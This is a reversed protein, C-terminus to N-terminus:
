FCREKAEEKEKKDMKLELTAELKKFSKNFEM